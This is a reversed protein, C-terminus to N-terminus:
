EDHRRRDEILVRERYAEMSEGPRPQLAYKVGLAQIGAASMPGNSQGNGKPIAKSRKNARGGKKLLPTPPNLKKEERSAEKFARWKSQSRNRLARIKASESIYSQLSPFTVRSNDVVLWQVKQMAEAFGHLHAVADIADVAVDVYADKGNEVNVCQQDAWVWVRLLHGLVQEPRIKLLAAMRWVEPKDLTAHELKIWDGAM